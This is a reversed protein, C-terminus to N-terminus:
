VAFMRKYHQYWTSQFLDLPDHEQKKALFEPFQPYCALVQDKRAWRHYTLYYSGDREIALDILHRFAEAASELGAISHDIHLNFIVCAYSQKAWALFCEDDKEILRITGYIVNGQKARMGKAAAHMLDALRNRPVYIETIMETGPVDSSLRKDLKKHYNAPYGGIQSEDSWYVQGNTKMYYDSYLQFARAKEKHALYVLEMWARDSVEAQGEPIPTRLDVPKYCSFVGRSLFDDTADDIAFQFDGTTYGEKIRDQFSGALDDINILAVIREIKERKVLRFEVSHIIGFLGYGGIALKFLEPNQDRSCRVPDGDANVLLISEVDSIMPKKILSRGHANASLAGGLSLKDAGTQKTPITWGDDARNQAQMLWEFLDPWEIGAEVDIIGRQPDFDIVGKMARCDLLTAGRAFQQGGMAHRSGSISLMGNERKAKKVLSIFDELSSPSVIEGVVTENLQSHVDNVVLSSAAKGRSAIYAVGGAAALSAGAGALFQRRSIKRM